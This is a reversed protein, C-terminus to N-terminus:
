VAVELGQIAMGTPIPQLITEVQQSDALTVALITMTGMQTDEEEVVVVVVAVATDEEETPCTTTVEDSPTSSLEFERISPNPHLSFSTSFLAHLTNPTYTFTFSSLTRRSCFKILCL